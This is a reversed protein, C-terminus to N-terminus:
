VQTQNQNQSYPDNFSAQSYPTQAYEQSQPIQAQPYLPAMIDANGNNEQNRKIAEMEIEEPTQENEAPNTTFRGNKSYDKIIEELERDICCICYNILFYIIVFGGFLLYFPIWFFLSPCGCPAYWGCDENRCFCSCHSDYYNRIVPYLKDDYCCTNSCGARFCRAPFARTFIFCLVGLVLVVILYWQIEMPLLSILFGIFEGFGNRSRSM